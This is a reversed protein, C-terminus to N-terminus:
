QSGGALEGPCSGLDSSEQGASGSGASLGRICAIMGLIGRRMVRRVLFRPAPLDPKIRVEYIVVVGEPMAIFDWSAEIVEPKGATRQIEAHKFPERLTRFTYDQEPVLWGRKVVQRTLTVVGNDELVECLKLGDLFTFANECSFIVEWIREVPTRMFILAQTAVGPEGNQTNNLIIEGTRLRQLTAPEPLLAERAVGPSSICFLILLAFRKVQGGSRSLQVPTFRGRRWPFLALM